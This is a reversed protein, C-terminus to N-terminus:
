ERVASRAAKPLPDAGVARSAIKDAAALYKEMLVPSITLVDGINDFGNGLTTPPSIRSPASTSRWCIASPTPTNAATSAAPPSAAPIPSSTAIPRKSNTRCTNFSPTWRPPARCAKPRCRAPASRACSSTGAMAARPSPPAQTFQAINMGGSALNDNHCPTCTKTLVPAVTKEFTPNEAACLAGCACLLLTVTRSKRVWEDVARRRIVGPGSSINCWRRTCPSYFTCSTVALRSMLTGSQLYGAYHFSYTLLRFRSLNTGSTANQATEPVQIFTQIHTSSAGGDVRM